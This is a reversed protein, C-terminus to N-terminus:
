SRFIRSYQIEHRASAFALGPCGWGIDDDPRALAAAVIAPILPRLQDLIRLGSSQGLPVLRMAAATQNECWSFLWATAADAVPLQWRATALAFLTLYSTRPREGWTLGEPLGLTALVRGLANGM